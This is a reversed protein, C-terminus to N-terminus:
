CVIVMLMWPTLYQTTEHTAELMKTRWNRKRIVVKDGFGPVSKMSDNRRRMRETEMAFRLAMPWWSVEMSAGHLLRRVRSKVEQVAREARGNGKPDEGSNTSHRIGRSAMWSRLDRNVFERGQDTHITHIPFGDSRLQLYIEIVGAMVAEKTKGPVPVGVRLVEVEPDVGEEELNKEEVEEDLTVLVDEEGEVRREEQQEEEAELQIEEKEEAVEEVKEEEKSDETEEKKSTPKLWTYTGILMFRGTDEVDRGEVYPGSVDLNLVGARPNKISVHKRGRAAAEQCIQCDRRFPTHGRQVHESWSMAMLNIPAKWVQLCLQIAVERVFGPAWRSLDKSNRM